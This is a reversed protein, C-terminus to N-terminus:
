AARNEDLLSGIPVALAAAIARLNDITIRQKGTEMRSIAAQDIGTADSLAKQSFGKEKRVQRINM